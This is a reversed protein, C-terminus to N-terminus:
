CRGTNAVILAAIVPYLLTRSYHDRLVRALGTGTVMGIEACIFQIATMMPLTALAMWLTSLGLSAGAIEYTGIGSPDDDSAGTVLGPGLIKFFRKLPNHERAVAAELSGPAAEATPIVPDTSERGSRKRKSLRNLM